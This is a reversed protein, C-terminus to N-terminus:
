KARTIGLKQMRSELTTPKMGLIKAAGAEGRIHWSTSELIRLIHSREIEELTLDHAADMVKEASQWDGRLVTDTNTILLREIVNRLERVNGPWSYKRFAEMTQAHISEIRRGMRQGLDNVFHWVLPPIDERRERLPPIKIPFVNLRYYLDERFRNERIAVELDRATAAVVRVDVRITKPSGLREFEGEQLVRLLKAQLDLPLEGIEDLFITSGNALEFRGIERTLAGTYAGKERGFLESEILTAPLAACNVKVMTKNKRKSSEHIARAILEKGTGTEGLILVTADTKAVQEAKKLVRRIAESGGVVEQHEQDLKIEERLYLNEQELQHKLQEIKSYATQLEDNARKIESVDICSGIYGIFIGAPTFRPVGQDLVWQYEGDARRLRYEMQFPRRADFAESYTAICRDLDDPHVGLTWGEGLEQELTRGTYELWVKNFFTCLKDTGAVWIMVPATDAMHRFREESEKIIEEDRKRETIDLSAGMFREVVGGPGPYSRGLSSIWRISGDPRLVRCEVLCDGPKSLASEILSRVKERDEPHVSDFSTVFDINSDKPWGFLKRTQESAWIEDDGAKWGWVGLRASDLALQTQERSEHLYLNELELQHKLQEIESYAKQLAENARKRALANAFVEAVLGLREILPEAWEREERMTGFAVAGFVKGGARLPFIISSKPGYRRIMEKEKAAEEPLDEVRAYRIVQGALVTRAYWPYDRYAPLLPNPEFGEAAWSHTIPFEDGEPSLQALASRDLGLAECIRKHAALIQADVQDPALNIFTASLEARLTEFALQQALAAENRKRETIDLSAGMFRDIVGRENDYSRGLSRIWRISGDPQLIRFEALCDGPKSMATEILRRVKERDEPHVSNFSTVFDINSSQPWGFLKRTQESAWIEDGGAKWGWVGLRASDLALNTQERTERLALVTRKRALASAFVDAAQQFRALILSDWTRQRHFMIAVMAGIHDGGVVLPIALWSKLGVDRMYAREAVAEEPVDEMASWSCIEMESVRSALWPFVEKTKGTPPAPVGPRRWSHSFTRSKKDVDTQTILTGDLDLGETLRALGNIIEGDIREVPLNIFTKSLGSILREFELASQLERVHRIESIDRVASLVLSRGEAELPSLSIEVPFEHGDSHLGLLELGVGMPRASPASSYRSRHSEHPGRFREPMLKEVPEGLLRERSYGFMKEAHANMALVRGQEDVIIMADPGSAFLQTADLGRLADKGQDRQPKAGLHEGSTEKITAEWTLM